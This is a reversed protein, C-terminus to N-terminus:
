MGAYPDGDSFTFGDEGLEETDFGEESGFDLDLGSGTVMAMARDIEDDSGHQAPAMGAKRTCVPEDLDKGTEISKLVGDFCRNYLPDFVFQLHQEEDLLLEELKTSDMPYDEAYEDEKPMEALTVRDLHNWEDDCIYFCTMEDDSYGVSKLIAKHLDLFTSESDAEIVRYFDDSEESMFNFKYVM